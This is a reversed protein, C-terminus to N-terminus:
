GSAIERKSAPSKQVTRDSHVKMELRVERLKWDELKSLTQSAEQFQKEALSRPM